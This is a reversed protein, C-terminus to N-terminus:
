GADIVESKGGGAGTSRLARSIERMADQRCRRLQENRDPNDMGAGSQVEAVLESL